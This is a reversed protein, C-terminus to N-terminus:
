PSPSADQKRKKLMAWLERMTIEVAGAKVALARKGSAVDFHEKYTGQKQVWKRQVGIRDAMELLEDTTDAIMHCMKMRGFPLCANDIYVTM